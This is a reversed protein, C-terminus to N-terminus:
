CWARLFNSSRTLKHHVIYLLDWTYSATSKWTIIFPQISFNLLKMMLCCMGQVSNGRGEKRCTERRWALRSNGPPMQREATPQPWAMAAGRGPYRLSSFILYIKKFMVVCIFYIHAQNIWAKGKYSWSQLQFYNQAYAFAPFASM